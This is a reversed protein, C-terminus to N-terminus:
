NLENKNSTVNKLKDFDTKKVFNAIDNKNALNAQKLRASFKESTLKNFEQTTIYKDQDHDTTIKNELIQTVIKKKKVLNRVNNIKNEVVTLSSTTALNINPIKSKVENIKANLTATTADAMKDEINKMKANYVDKKIVDNKM